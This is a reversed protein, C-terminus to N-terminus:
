LSSFTKMLVFGNDNTLPPFCTLSISHLVNKNKYMYYRNLNGIEVKKNLDLSHALREFDCCM